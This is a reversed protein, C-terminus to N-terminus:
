RIYWAQGGNTITLICKNRKLNLTDLRGIVAQEQQRDCHALYNMWQTWLTNIDKIKYMADYKDM